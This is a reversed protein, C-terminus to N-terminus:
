RAMIFRNHGDRTIGSVTVRYLERPNTKGPVRNSSDLGSSCSQADDRALLTDSHSSTLLLIAGSLARITM